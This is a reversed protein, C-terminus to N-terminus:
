ESESPTQQLKKHRIDIGEIAFVAHQAINKAHDAIRELSKGIFLLYFLKDVEGPFAASKDLMSDTLTAFARDIRLDHALVKRTLIPNRGFFADQVERLMARVEDAMHVLPDLSLSSPWANVRLVVKAINKCQDGIRELNTNSKLVAIVTRFDRGNPQHRVLIQECKRDISIELADITDDNQYVTQALEQNHDALANVVNSLQEDVLEFM